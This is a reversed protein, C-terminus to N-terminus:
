KKKEKQKQMTVLDRNHDFLRNVEDEYENVIVQLDDIVAERKRIMDRLFALHRREENTM